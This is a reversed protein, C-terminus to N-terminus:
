SARSNKLLYPGDIPSTEGKEGATLSLEKGQRTRYWDKFEQWSFNFDQIGIDRAKAKSYNLFSSELTLM